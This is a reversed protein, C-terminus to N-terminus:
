KILFDSVQKKDTVKYLKGDAIGDVIGSIQDFSITNQDYEVMGLSDKFSVKIFNVGNIKTLKSQILKACGLDCTMGKIHFENKVLKLKESKTCSILSAIVFFLVIIKRM